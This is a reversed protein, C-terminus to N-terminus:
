SLDLMLDFRSTDMFPEFHTRLMSDAGKIAIKDNPKADVEATAAVVVAGMAIEAVTTLEQLM